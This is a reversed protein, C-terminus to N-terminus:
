QQRALRRQLQLAAPMAPAVALAQALYWRADDTEGTTTCLLALAVLALPWPRRGALLEEIVGRERRAVVDRDHGAAVQVRFRAWALTAEHEPHGPQARCATALEGVARHVDGEGLARQGREFADLALKAVQPDVAWVTRLDARSRLWDHYRGRAAIDLLTARAREVLEWMPQVSGALEALDHAALATPAYRLAQIRYAEDIQPAEALPTIELVDYYTGGPLRDRRHALHHRLEALARSASSARPNPEVSLEVAGACALAWTLRATQAADLPGKHLASQLTLTGEFAATAAQEPLALRREAVVAACLRTATVYHRAYPALATRPLDLSVGRAAMALESVSTPTRPVLPRGAAACLMPWALSTALRIRHADQVAAITTATSAKSALLTIRAAPAAARAAESDGIAVVGPLAPCERWAAVAAPLRAALHDADLIVVGPEGIAQAHAATPGDACSADWQARAGARRLSDELPLGAGVGPLAILILPAARPAAAASAPPSVLPPSLASETRARPAPAAPPSTLRPM